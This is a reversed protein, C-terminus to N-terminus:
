VVTIKLKQNNVCNCGVFVDFEGKEVAFEGKANYFALEEKGLRFEVLVMKGAKIYIKKFGKLERIPRSM